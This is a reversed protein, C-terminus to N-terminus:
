ALPLPRNSRITGGPDVRAKVARLRAIEPAGYAAGLDEGPALFTVVRGHVTHPAAADRVKGLALGIGPVMASDFVLGTAGLLAHAALVGAVGAVAPPTM